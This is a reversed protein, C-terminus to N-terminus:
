KLIFPVDFSTTKSSNQDRLTVRLIYSGPNGKSVSYTLYTNLETSQIPDMRKLQQVNQQANLIVGDASIIQVDMAIDISYGGGSQGIGYGLIQWTIHMPEGQSFSNETREEYNELDKVLRTNYVTLPLDSWLISMSNKLEIAAKEPYGTQYYDLVQHVSKSFDSAQASVVGLFFLCGILIVNIKM